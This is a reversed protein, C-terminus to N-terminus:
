QGQAPPIEATFAMPVYNRSRIVEPSVRHRSTTYIFPRRRPFRSSDRLDAGPEAQTHIHAPQRRVPSGFGGRSVLNEPVFSSLFINM